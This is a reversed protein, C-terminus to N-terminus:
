EVVECVAELSERTIRVGEEVVNKPLALSQGREGRGKVTGEKEKKDKEKDASTSTSTSTSGNVGNTSSSQALTDARIDELVKAMLVPFTTYKGSRLLSLAHTQILTPWNTPSSHLSHLLTEQIKAVHGDKLLLSNIQSRLDADQTTPTYNAASKSVRVPTTPESM